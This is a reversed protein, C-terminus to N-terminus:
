VASSLESIPILSLLTLPNYPIMLIGSSLVEMLMSSHMISKARIAILVSTNHINHIHSNPFHPSKQYQITFGCQFAGLFLQFYWRIPPNKTGLGINIDLTSCNNYINIPHKTIPNNRNYKISFGWFGGLFVELDSFGTM